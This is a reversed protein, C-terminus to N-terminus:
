LLYIMELTGPSFEEGSLAVRAPWLVQGNKMDASKIEQVFVDKIEQVTELSNTIDELIKKTLELSDRVVSMDTIKMKPNIFLEDQAIKSDNFFFSSLEKFENFKKMRTKLENLININYEKPFKQLTNYFDIDYKELYTLLKTYVESIELTKLYHANFFKLREV